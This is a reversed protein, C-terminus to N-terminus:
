GLISYTARYKGPTLGSKRKFLKNFHSLTMQLELAINLLTMDTNKLLSQAYNIKQDTIYDLLSVGTQQKFIRTLRSYSYPTHRALESVPTTFYHADQLLVLFNALWEPYSDRAYYSQILYRSILDEIILKCTSVDVPSPPLHAQMAITKKMIEQILIPEVTFSLPHSIALLQEFLDKDVLHFYKEIFATDIIFNIHHYHENGCAKHNILRHRDKPRILCCDGKKLIFSQKNIEHTVEGALVVFVEWHAHTHLKPYDVRVYNFAVETEGMQGWASSSQIQTVAPLYQAPVHHDTRYIPQYFPSKNNDM